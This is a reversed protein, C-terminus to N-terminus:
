NMHYGIISPDFRSGVAQDRVGFNPDKLTDQAVALSIAAEGGTAYRTALEGGLAASDSSELHASLLGNMLNWQSLKSNASRAADFQQVLAKFDYREIDWGSSNIQGKGADPIEQLLQLTVVTQNLTTSYWDKFVAQDGGAIQLVMDMGEKRFSLDSGTIGGGLSLTNSAGPTALVTDRGDGRNFALVNAGGGANITDDHKGGAIFDNDAGADIRDNQKGGLLASNGETNRLIDQGNSGAMVDIGCGGDLIDDGTSGQLYDNGGEGRVVDGGSGAFVVDNGTGTHITNGGSGGLVIDDDRGILITQQGPSGITVRTKILLDDFTKISGDAFRFEEIPSVYSGVSDRAIVFDFGEDAQECGCDDLVRVHAICVGGEETVRLAVNDLSLGVGFRVTDHGAIDAIRDLGDGLDIRYADDGSGGDLRDSGSGGFLLDNGDGGDLTDNGAQGDLVDEGGAGSIVNDADNGIIFNDAGNGGGDINGHGVLHLNEVNEPLVYTVSCYICDIGGPATEWVTDGANDVRYADDGAGGTMVDAGAAGDLVNNGENGALINALENGTADTNGSGTLTLNEVNASLGYTVDSFVSDIGANIEEIVVDAADDVLYIDNGAGGAMADRGLGGDIFNNGGNGTVANALENGNANSDACGTLVLNEVNASLAYSVGSLVTDVGEERNEIVTDGDCDVIYSDNGAGGSMTDAGLGGDLRNNGCNGAVCNALDNGSGDIDAAGTLQLGEINASLAYSVCADVSDLGEDASEVVDDGVNDVIYHDNGAGGRMTDAGMGGDLSNNGSNAILVNDLNNGIADLDDSGALSLNEVNTALSLSIASVITDMGGDTQEIVRDGADDVTYTDDGRGGIMTDAGSAGDLANNGANGVLTNSLANGIADIDAAGTLILNEVNDSLWYTVQAEITDIGEDLNEVVADAINDAVYTDDGRGGALRDVGIGGDLINNASNGTLRNALENGTGDIACTGTLILNEVHSTLAYTVSAKVTDDGEGAAEVVIDGPNDIRYIEDGNGGIFKDAGLGGDLVDNGAGGVLVNAGANGVVINDLENGSASLAATGTLTLNEVNPGLVYGELNTRVTDVGANIEETVADGRNDVFYTDNGSGGILNDSEAGGDLLDDGAGGDLRDDGDMGALEDNGDRGFLVDSGSEGYIQDDGDDGSLVDGGSGGAILDNGAGGFVVDNGDEALIADHGDGGFVLDSGLGAYIADDGSGGMVLDNDAGSYVLDNGEGADILDNGGDEFIVDDGAYGHIINNGNKGLLLDAEPTGDLVEGTPSFALQTATAASGDGQRVQVANTVRLIVDAADRTTGDAFKVKTIGNITNGDQVTFAGDSVLGISVVGLDTLTRFEGPDNVGDADADRWVGFKAWKEDAATLLGDHDTDFAEALSQLDGQATEAYRSFIIESSDDVLGNGNADFALWGDGPKTWSVQRKWGDANIDFFVDSEEAPTFAFGNGDLDVAVPFCGGGGGSPKPATYPEPHPVTVTIDTSAGHPDTVRVEFADSGPSTGVAGYCTTPNFEKNPAIWATYGYNGQADLTVAGYQPNGVLAFTLSEAPDDIDAGLVKGSRTDEWEIPEDHVTGFCISDRYPAYIPEGGEEEPEYGYIPLYTRQDSATPADNLNQLSINVRASGSQGNTAVTTYDFGAESGAYNAEPSFHVFGNADLFGTGHRFNGVGTIALERGTLGGLTDNALLDASSVIAEVDEYSTIGDRNAEVRTLDDVRTVLLSVRGDASSEVLIGEPVVHIRSGERDAELDPSGLQGVHGNRSFTGMAYNLEGIGLADLGQTEGADQMGDQDADRWVKLEKWVPDAATLKGDYNADVWAMGALGRRSLAVTSNSFLEKGSDIEGNYNRDLVLFADDGKIWATQKLYSSDDVDFAVGHAKTVMEIGDGDLDLAVPRFTQTTGSLPAALQGDRGAREEETLGAKPDGAATQMRATDVEWQPAIADRALASRIFAEMLSQYSEPSGAEANYPKGGTDFRLEPHQEVGTLPDVDAYRYGTKNYGLTPMRNPILGLPSGPNVEEVRAILGNMAALVNDLVATVAEEGGTRGTALIGIGNDQWVFKGNGKPDPVDDGGFITDIISYVAYAWGIYPVAYVEASMLAIDAVAVAAGTTDGHAISNVLNLYPLAKNLGQALDFAAGYGQVIANVGDGYTATLVATYANAGFSVAQVGDTIAAVTDGRELADALAVLSLVGSVASSAASLDLNVVGNAASLDNALRLGSALVPLPEGTQIAKIVSLADILTPVTDQLTLSATEVNQQSLLNGNGDFSLKVIRGDAYTVTELTSGDEFSQVASTQLLTGVGSYTTTLRLGGESLVTDSVERISGTQLLQLQAETPPDYQVAHLSGDSNLITMTRAGDASIAVTTISQRQNAADLVETTTGGDANVITRSSEIVNGSGDFIGKVVGTKGYYLHTVTQDGNPIILEKSFGVFEDGFRVSGPEFEADEYPLNGERLIVANAYEYTTWIDADSEVFSGAVANLLSKVASEGIIAGGIGSGAVFVLYLVQGLPGTPLLPSFFGAAFETAAIGGAWGGAIQLSGDAIIKCAGDVNGREYAGQAQDVMEKIQYATIGVGLIGLGKFAGETIAVAKAGLGLNRWGEGLATATEATMSQNLNVKASSNLEESPISTGEYPLGRFLSSTDVKDIVIRPSGDSNLM